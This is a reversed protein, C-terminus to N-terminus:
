VSTFASRSSTPTGIWKWVCSVLPTLEPLMRRAASAPTSMASAASAGILPAVLWGHRLLM